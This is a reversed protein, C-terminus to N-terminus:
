VGSLLLIGAYGRCSMVVIGLDLPQRLQRREIVLASAPSCGWGAKTSFSTTYRSKADFCFLRFRRVDELAIGM